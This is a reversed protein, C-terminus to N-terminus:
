RRALLAEAIQVANLAAGKRLNDGSVFLALGTEACARTARPHPGVYCPDQGAALLPTPMDALVVGPRRRWCSAPGSPRSRGSSSPTSRCRTAPSCAAGARVHGVRALDPIELIKRSENRLKQEEDTEDGDVLDGAFPLM